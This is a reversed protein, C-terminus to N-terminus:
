LPLRYSLAWLCPTAQRYRGNAPGIRDEYGWTALEAMRDPRRYPRLGGKMAYLAGAREINWRLARGKM